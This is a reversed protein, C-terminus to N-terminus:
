VEFPDVFREFFEVAQNGSGAKNNREAPSQMDSRVAFGQGTEPYVLAEVHLWKTILPLAKRLGEVQKTTLYRDNSCLAFSTPKAIRKIDKPIRLSIPHAVFVSEVLGGERYRGGSLTWRKRHTLLCAYRGGWGYGAAFVKRTNNEDYMDWFFKNIIPWSVAERHRFDWVLLNALMRLRSLSSPETHDATPMLKDRFSKPLPHGGFFNPVYVTWGTKRAFMDALLRTDKSEWGFADSIIVIIFRKSGGSAIYSPLGHVVDSTGRPEGSLPNDM